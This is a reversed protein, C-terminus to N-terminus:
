PSRPWEVRWVSATSSEAVKRARPFAEGMFQTDDEPGRSMLMWRSSDLFPDNQVLDITYYGEKMHVM